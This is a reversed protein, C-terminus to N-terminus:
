SRNLHRPILRSGCLDNFINLGKNEMAGMNFDSVAVINFVDLDYERGFAEEDWRMSRKLSDMAWDCLAEKGHEVFINLEVQRGSATTFSDTIKALDGAVLAFLYAPKPHPDHWIAFYRGTDPVLGTEILNGNALLVPCTDRPAELRVTYVSLVDPRDPFFTIRRFGDAECQTCYTGSSRYLGMLQTNADPNLETTITLTFPDATPPVLELTSPSVLYADEQLAAGDMEISHLKLNDGDLLLPAGPKTDPQRAIKLTAVVQTATPDLLVNLSVTEIRYAPPQYDELKIPTPTQSPM